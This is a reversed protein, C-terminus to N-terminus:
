DNDLAKKTNSSETEVNKKIESYLCIMGARLVKIENKLNLVEDLIEKKKSSRIFPNKINFYGLNTKKSREILSQFIRSLLGRFGKENFHRAIKQFFNEKLQDKAAMFFMQKNNEIAARFLANLSFNISIIKLMKNAISPGEILVAERFVDFYHDLDSDTIRRSIWNTNAVLWFFLNVRYIALLHNEKLWNHITKHHEYMAFLRNGTSSMTQGERNTRHYCLVRDVVSISDALTICQWHFPNDEYFFNGEPFRINNQMLFTRKYLKRWPVSIFSLLNKKSEIGNLPRTAPWNPDWRKSDLPKNFSKGVEDYEMYNCICIDANNTRVVSYMLEFMEEEYWDDGDAFGIYEGGSADIGANAATAVGGVTNEKFYITKIREDKESFSNIIDVTGDTSGDDVVIFEVDKLTQNVLTSLCKHIYKEVNYSTIIISVKM